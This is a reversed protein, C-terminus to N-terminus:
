PVSPAHQLRRVPSHDGAPWRFSAPMCNPKPYSSYRFYGTPSSLFAPVSRATLCPFCSIVAVAGVPFPLWDVCITDKKLHAAPQPVSSPQKKEASSRLAASVIPGPPQSSLLLTPRFRDRIGRSADGCSSYG